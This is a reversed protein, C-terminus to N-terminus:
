SPNKTWIIRGTTQHPINGQDGRITATASDELVDKLCRVLVTRGVFFLAVWVALYIPFLMESLERDARFSLIILITGIAAAVTFWLLGLTRSLVDSIRM